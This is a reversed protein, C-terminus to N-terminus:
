AVQTEYIRRALREAEIQKRPSALLARDTRERRLKYAFAYGAETFDVTHTIKRQFTGLLSGPIREFREILGSEILLPINAHDDANMRISEVTGGYEVLTTEFYLMLSTQDRTANETTITPM